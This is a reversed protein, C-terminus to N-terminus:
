NPSVYGTIPPIDGTPDNTSYESVVNDPFNEGGQDGGILTITSGSVAVVINVHGGGHIALDGPQPTYGSALSHFTFQSGSQPPVDLNSVLSIDWSPGNSGAPGFPDGAQNYIWSAFDACWEEARGNSYKFYANTGPKLTGSVWLQLEQEAL